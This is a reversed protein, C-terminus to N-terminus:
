RLRISSVAAAALGSEADGPASNSFALCLENQGPVVWQRPIVVRYTSWASALEYGGVVTGNLTVTVRQPLAKRPARALIEAPLPIPVDLPVRICARPYLAWRFSIEDRWGAFPAWGSGLWRDDADALNFTGNRNFRTYLYEASFV